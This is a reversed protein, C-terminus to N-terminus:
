GLLWMAVRLYVMIGIIDAMGAVFPNSMLAPDLGLRQFALPLASGLITGSMVVLFLTLPVVLASRMSVIDSTLLPVLFLGCLALFSGLIAGVILEHRMVRVWDTVRIDDRALGTIM